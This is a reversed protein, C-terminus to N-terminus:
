KELVCIRRTLSRHVRQQHVEVITFGAEIAFDDVPRESIFVARKEKKLVRHIERLSSLLLHQLSEAKIAASRGYPPDTVVADVSEDRLALRCADQYMLSYSVNYYDLNMKAGLLLKRQMDGGIVEMGALGAEVLIGGTGCFPDFLNGDPRAINVLARAVRPMLVGPYFFPKYHPKRADYAGRDISGAIYGFVSKDETLLIRFQLEPNRLDARAGRRYFIGGLRQEMLETNIGSYERVRKVRISYTGNFDIFSRNVSEVIDEEGPGGINLVKIIHHTMSLRKSLIEIIKDANNKLDIILCADLALHIQFDAKLAGLCAIVESGPITRHEGSLEFALLM